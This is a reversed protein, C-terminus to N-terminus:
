LSKHRVLQSVSRVPIAVVIAIAYYIALYAVLIAVSAVLGNLSPSPVFSWPMLQSVVVIGVIGIEIIIGLVDSIGEFGFENMLHAGIFLAVQLGFLVAVSPSAFFRRVATSSAMGVM